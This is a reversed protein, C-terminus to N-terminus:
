CFVIIKHYFLLDISFMLPWM